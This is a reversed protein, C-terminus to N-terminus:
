AKTVARYGENAIAKAAREAQIELLTQLMQQVTFTKGYKVFIVDFVQSTKDTYIAHHFVKGNSPNILYIDMALKLKSGKAAQLSLLASRTKIDVDVYKLNCFLLYDNRNSKAFENLREREVVSLYYVDDKNKQKNTKRKNSEYYHVLKMNSSTPDFAPGSIIANMHLLEFFSDISLVEGNALVPDVSLKPKVNFRNTQTIKDILLEEFTYFFEQRLANEGYSKVECVVISPLSKNGEFAAFVSGCYSSWMILTTFVVLVLNKCKM